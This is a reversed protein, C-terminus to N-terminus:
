KESPSSSFHVTESLLSLHSTTGPLGAWSASQKKLAEFSINRSTQFPFCVGPGFSKKVPAMLLLLGISRRSNTLANLFAQAVRLPGGVERRRASLFSATRDGSHSRVAM